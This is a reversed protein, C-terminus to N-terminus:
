ISRCRRVSSKQTTSVSQKKREITHTDEQELCLQLLEKYIAETCTKEHMRMDIQMIEIQTELQLIRALCCQMQKEHRAVIEHVEAQNQNHLM